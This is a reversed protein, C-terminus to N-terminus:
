YRRSRILHYQRYRLGPGLSVLVFLWDFITLSLALIEGLFM